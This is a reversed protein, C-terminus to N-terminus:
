THWSSCRQQTKWVWCNGTHILFPGGGLPYGALKVCSHSANSDVHALMVRSHKRCRTSDMGMFISATRLCFPPFSLILFTKRINQVSLTYYERTISQWLHIVQHGLHSVSGMVQPSNQVMGPPLLPIIHIINHIISDGWLATLPLADRIRVHWNLHWLHHWLLYLHPWWGWWAM